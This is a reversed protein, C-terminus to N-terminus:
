ALYNYRDKENNCRELYERDILNEICKKINKVNPTFLNINKNVEIILDNHSLNKKSKMIRVINAKIMESRDENVIDKNKSEDQSKDMIPTPLVFRLKKSTFNKNFTLVTEDEIEEENSILLKSKTLNNIYIICEKTNMSLIETIEKYTYQMKKMYLEIISHEILSMTIQYKTDLNLYITVTSIENNWEVKRQSFKENYEKRYGDLINLIENSLKCKTNKYIPWHSLTLVKYKTSINSEHLMIDKIMNEIKITASFGINRKFYNIIEKEKDLDYKSFLLRKSLYKSYLELYYDKEEMVLVINMYKEIFNNDLLSQKKTLYYNIHTIFLKIISYKKNKIIIDQCTYRSLVKKYETRMKNVVRDSNNSKLNMFINDYLNNLEIFDLIYNEINSTSSELEKIEEQFTNIIVPLFIEEGKDVKELLKYLRSLQEYNRERLCKSIFSKQNYNDINKMVILQDLFKNYNQYLSSPFVNKFLKEERLFANEVEIYYDGYNKKEFIDQKFNRFFIETYKQINKYIINDEDLTNFLSIITFLPLMIDKEFEYKRYNNLNEITLDIIKNQYKSYIVKEFIDKSKEPITKIGSNKIYYRELYRLILCSIYKICNQDCNYFKGIDNIFDISRDLISLIVNSYFLELKQCYLDYLKKGNKDEEDDVLYNYITTYYKNIDEMTFEIDKKLYIISYIDNISKSIVDEVLSTKDNKSHIQINEKSNM